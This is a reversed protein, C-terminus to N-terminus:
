RCAAGLGNPNEKRPAGFRVPSPDRSNGAKLWGPSPSREAAANFFAARGQPPRTLTLTRTRTRTRTLTLRLTLTLTLAVTLALM